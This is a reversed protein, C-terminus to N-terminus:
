EEDNVSCFNKNGSHMCRPCLASGRGGHSREPHFDTENSFSCRVANRDTVVVTQAAFGAEPTM